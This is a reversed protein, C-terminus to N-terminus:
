RSVPHQSLARLLMYARRENPPDTQSRRPWALGSNAPTISGFCAVRFRIQAVQDSAPCAEDSAMQRVLQESAAVANVDEVIQRGPGHVVDAV